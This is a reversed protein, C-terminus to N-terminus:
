SSPPSAADAAAAAAADAADAAGQGGEGAQRRRAFGIVVRFDRGQVRSVRNTPPRRAVRGGRAARRPMGGLFQLKSSEGRRRHGSSVPRPHHPHRVLPASTAAGAVAAQATRSRLPRARHSRRAHIGDGCGGSGVSAYVQLYKTTNTCNTIRLHHAATLVRRRHCPPIKSKM